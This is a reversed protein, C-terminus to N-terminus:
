SGSTGAYVDFRTVSTPAPRQRDPDKARAAQVETIASQYVDDNEAVVVTLRRGAERDVFWWAEVGAKGSFAPVVEDRV